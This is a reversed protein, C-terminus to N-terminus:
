KTRVSELDRIQKRLGSLADDLNKAQQKLAELGRDENIAPDFPPAPPM